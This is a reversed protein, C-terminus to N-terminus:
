GHVRTTPLRSNPEDRLDDKIVKIFRFASPELHGIKMLVHTSSRPSKLACFDMERCCSATFGFLRDAFQRNRLLYERKYVM